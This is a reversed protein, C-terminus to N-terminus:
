IGIYIPQVPTNSVLYANSVYLTNTTINNVYVQYTAATLPTISFSYAGINSDVLSLNFSVSGSLIELGNQFTVASLTAPAVPNNLADTSLFIETITQGTIYDM